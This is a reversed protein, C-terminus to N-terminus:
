AAERVSPTFSLRAIDQTRGAKYYSRLMLMANANDEHWFIGAGKLRLNIVRRVASEMAGSGMPLKEQKVQKYNMRNINNHFYDRETRIKDSLRGKCLEDVAEIVLNVKGKLLRKRQKRIWQRRQTKTWGRRLDAVKSLHEVAHYFDVLEMVQDNRLGLSSFLSAVRLWIWRAGDAVFLVRDAQDVDLSSLYYRILEFIADPAQGDHKLLGDIIPTWTHDMNGKDDLVYIILLKPERWNTHYRHRGKKTKPGRKNCRVRLRGGDVSIVIRRGTVPEGLSAAYHQQAYRARTTYQYTLTRIGNVSWKIGQKALWVKAEEMSGMAAVMLAIFNSLAPTVHPRYGHIGLLILVPYCGRNPRQKDCNRSFYVTSVTITGGHLTQIRVDRLGQNKVRGPMAQALRRGAQRMSENDCVTQLKYQAIIDGLNNTFQYFELEDKEFSEATNFTPIECAKNVINEISAQMFSPIKISIMKMSPDNNSM